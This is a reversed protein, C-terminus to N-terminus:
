RNEQTSTDAVLGISGSVFLKSYLIGWWLSFYMDDDFMHRLKVLGRAGVTSDPLLVNLKLYDVM